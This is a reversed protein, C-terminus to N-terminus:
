PRELTLLSVPEAFGKPLRKGAPEFRIRADRVKAALEPTVLLENPVALEALRAALNVVSGYYDGGRNILVGYTLGGRPTVAPDGAFHEVLTLAIDCAAGADIAVFMVEDGILKVVRGGKATATEHAISEFREITDTLERPEMRRSLATFGVLDVFGVAFRVTDTSAGERALRFRRISEELHSRFVSQLVSPVVEAAESARLSAQALELETGHAELIPGEVNVLFMSVVAEAIRALASGMVRLFHRAAQEGFLQTSVAFATFSQVDRDAFRPEEPDVPALGVTRRIAEVQDVTLGAREALEGIRLHAGPNIVLDGALGTLAEGPRRSRVMQEITVGRASLWELLELREAANPGAPDYLGAAQYEAIRSDHPVDGEDRSV